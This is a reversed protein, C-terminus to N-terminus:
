ALNFVHLSGTVLQQVSWSDALSWAASVAQDVGAGHDRVNYGRDLLVAIDRRGLFSRCWSSLANMADGTGLNPAVLFPAVVPTLLLAWLREGYAEIEELRLVETGLGRRLTWRAGEFLLRAGYELGDRWRQEVLEALDDLFKLVMLAAARKSPDSIDSYPTSRSAVYDRVKQIVWQMRELDYGSSCRYQGVILGGPSTSIRLVGPFEPRTYVTERDEDTPQIANVNVFVNAM